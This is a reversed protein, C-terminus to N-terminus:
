STVGISKVTTGVCTSCEQKLAIWLHNSPLSFASSSRTVGEPLMMSVWNTEMGSM